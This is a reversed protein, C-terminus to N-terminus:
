LLTNAYGRDSQGLSGDSGSFTFMELSKVCSNTSLNFVVFMAVRSNGSFGLCVLPKGPYIVIHLRPKNVMGAWKRYLCKELRHELSAEHVWRWFALKNAKRRQQLLGRTPCKGSERTMGLGLRGYWLPDFKNKEGTDVM